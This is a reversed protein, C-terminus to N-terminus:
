GTHPLQIYVSLGGEPSREAWIRGGHAVVIQRTIYLGLGSGSIGAVMANAALYTRDFLHLLEKDPVGIGADSVCVAIREDPAEGELKISLHIAGCEAPAYKAANDLLNQFVQSLRTVDGLFRLSMPADFQFTHSPANVQADEMSQQALAVLDLQKRELRFEGTHMRAVDLLKESLQVARRTQTVLSEIGPLLDSAPGDSRARRALLQARGLLTTLPQRLDHGAIAMLDELARLDTERQRMQEDAELEFAILQALLNLISFDDDTLEAPLPDLACLTGFYSGDRRNLPVAIYSEIGYRQLGPHTQFRPDASAHNILPPAVAGRVM